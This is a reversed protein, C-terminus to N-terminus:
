FAARYLALAAEETLPRPNFRGTWQELSKRALRPLDAKPIGLQALRTPAGSAALLAELRDAIDMGPGAASIGMMEAYLNGVEASNWRVVHRLLVAIAAGHATGHEETLPNALAHTAGLMSAEIAIGALAAGLLMAGRAEIDGPAELVREFNRELLRWAELSFFQSGATRRSTVYTEVAHGIADYGTAATVAPPQSVTLLPDLVATHFFAKPDGCAMKRHTADDSILAYSQVESGTGATTPVAIMPLMPRSAKAYGWYDKMSGGNTALFNIAKACDMSSGGGLGVISDVENEGAVLAGREAMASTPNEGFDHFFSVTLGKDRLLKAAREPFGLICLGRDSVVLTRKGLCSAVEGLREFAGTGYLIRTPCHFETM